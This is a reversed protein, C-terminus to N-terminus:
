MLSLGSPMQEVRLELINGNLTPASVSRMQTGPATIVEAETPHFSVDALSYVEIPNVVVIKTCEGLTLFGALQAENTTCSAIAFWHM